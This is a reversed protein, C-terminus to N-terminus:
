RFPLSIRRRANRFVLTDQTLWIVGNLGPGSLGASTKGTRLDTIQYGFGGNSSTGSILYNGDPSWSAYFGKEVARQPLGGDMSIVFVEDFKDTDFAVRTGDPSIFPFVVVMPPFTLQM